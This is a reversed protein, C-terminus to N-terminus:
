RSVFGLTGGGELNSSFTEGSEQDLIVLEMGPQRQYQKMVLDVDKPTLSLGAMRAAETIMKAVPHTRHDAATPSGFKVTKGPGRDPAAPQPISPSCDGNPKNCNIIIIPPLQPVPGQAGGGGIGAVDVVFLCDGDLVATGVFNLSLSSIGLGQLGPASANVQWTAPGTGRSPDITGRGSGGITIPGTDVVRADGGSGLRLPVSTASAQLNAFSWELSSAARVQAQAPQSGFLTGLLLILTTLTTAAKM